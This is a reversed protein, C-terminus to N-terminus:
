ESIGNTDEQWSSSGSIKLNRKRDSNLRQVTCCPLSSSLKLCTTTYFQKIQSLINLLNVANDICFLISSREAAESPKTRLESRKKREKYIEILNTVGLVSVSPEEASPDALRSGSLISGSLISAATTPYMLMMMMPMMLMMMSVNMTPVVLDAM